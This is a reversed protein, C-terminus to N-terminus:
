LWRGVWEVVGRLSHFEEASRAPIEPWRQRAMRSLAIGPGLELVTVEELGSNLATQQIWSGITRGFLAHVHPATYFDGAPGTVPEQRQYYGLRPHYLCLEMYRSFPIPGKERIEVALIERLNQERGTM